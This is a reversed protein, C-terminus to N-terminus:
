ARAKELIAIRRSHGLLTDHHEDVVDEIRNQTKNVRQDLVHVSERLEDQGEVLATLLGDHRKITGEITDFREEVKAFGTQVAETLDQM